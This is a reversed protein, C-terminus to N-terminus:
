MDYFGSALPSKKPLPIIIYQRPLFWGVQQMLYDLQSTIPYDEPHINFALKRTVKSETYCNLLMLKPKKIGKSQLFLKLAHRTAFPLYDVSPQAIMVKEEKKLAGVTKTFEINEIDSPDTEDIFKNNLHLGVIDGYTFVWDASNYATPNFVVGWGNALLFDDKMNSICFSEFPKNEEPTNLIFYPFGDPGTLVQPTACAFSAHAVNEYFTKDWVADRQEKPTKFLAAVIATKSSDCELRNAPIIQISQRPEVKPKLFDFLGM